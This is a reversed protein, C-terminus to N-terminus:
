LFYRRKEKHYCFIIFKYILFEKGPMFRVVSLHHTLSDFFLTMGLWVARLRRVHSCGALGARLSDYHACQRPFGWIKLSKKLFM